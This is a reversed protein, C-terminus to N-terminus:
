PEYDVPRQTDETNSEKPVDIPANGTIKSMLFRRIEGTINTGTVEGINELNSLFETVCIYFAVVYVVQPLGFVYEMGRALLVAMAYLVFKQVTRRLGWSEIDEKRHKAANIGTYLDAVVLVLLLVLFPTVENLIERIISGGIIRVLGITLSLKMLRFRPIQLILM